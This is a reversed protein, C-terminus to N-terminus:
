SKVKILIIRDSMMFHIMRYYWYVMQLSYVLPYSENIQKYVPVLHMENLDHKLNIWNYASNRHNEYTQYRLIQLQQQHSPIPSTLVDALDIYGSPTESEKSNANPLTM